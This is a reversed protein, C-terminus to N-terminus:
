SKSQQLAPALNCPKIPFLKFKLLVILFRSNLVCVYELYM